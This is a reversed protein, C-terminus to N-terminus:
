LAILPKIGNEARSTYDLDAYVNVLEEEAMYGKERVVALLEEEDALLLCRSAPGFGMDEVLRRILRSKIWGGHCVRENNIPFVIPRLFERKVVGADRHIAQEWEQIGGDAMYRRLLARCRNEFLAQFSQSFGEVDRERNLTRCISKLEEIGRPSFDLGLLDAFREPIIGPDTNLGTILLLPDEIMGATVDAIYAYRSDPRMRSPQKHHLHVVDEVLERSIGPVLAPLYEGANDDQNFCGKEANQAFPWRNLDHLLIVEESQRPDAGIERCLYRNIWLMRMIHDYRSFVCARPDGERCLTTAFGTVGKLRKLAKRVQQNESLLM